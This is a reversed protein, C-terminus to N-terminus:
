AAGRRSGERSVSGRSTSSTTGGVEITTSRLISCCSTPTKTRAVALILSRLHEPIKLRRRANKTKGSPVWLVRGGDDIDRAVREM